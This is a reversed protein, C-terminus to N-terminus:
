THGEQRRGEDERRRWEYEREMKIICEWERAAKNVYVFANGLVSWDGLFLVSNFKKCQLHFSGLAYM